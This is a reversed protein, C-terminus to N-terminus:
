RSALNMRQLLATFRPSARLPEFRPDRDLYSLLASRAEYSRELMTLTEDNRGLGVLVLAQMYPNVPGSDGRGQLEKLIVEAEARKGSIALVHGLSSLTNRGRGEMGIVKEFAAIAEAYQGLQEHVLGQGWIATSFKPDLELTEALRRHAEAYNRGFYAIIGINAHAVLSLPDLAHSREAAAVAENIRGRAALLRSLFHHLDAGSPQLALARRYEQEAGSWNWDGYALVYALAGHAEPLYPDLELAKLAATKAKAFQESPQTNAYFPLLSYYQALGAYAAANAPDRALVQRFYDLANQLGEPTRTALHYRARLYLQQVEANPSAQASDPRRPGVLKGGIHRVLTRVLSRELANVEDAPSELTDAPLSERGPAQLQVVVRLLGDRRQVSGAVVAEVKLDRAISDVPKPATRYGMVSALSIVDVRELRALDALVTETLGDVVYNLTSDGTRNELPLMAVRAFRPAPTLWTRASGVVWVIGALAAVAIATGLVQLKKHRWIPAANPAGGGHGLADAFLAMTPYRDAPVKALAKTVVHDLGQSVTDRVPRLSPVAGTLKRAVVAQATSGAFPPDGALMEYLVCALSYVDSRADIEREGTAQEPSMYQPSGISLGTQTLRSGGAQSVALAIGFDTVLAQGDKILINEPKIDRHVVGQRHAYDLAGAVQRTLDLATDLSLQKERDIHQRLSEGEVFPMVYFLYSPQSHEAPVEGSDFLPLIHSHQLQATVEIEKLFREAGLAETLEPKLVKIAVRRHHRVDEALYVTAMGGAGVERELRYRGSLAASLREFAAVTM